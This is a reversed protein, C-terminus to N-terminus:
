DYKKTDTNWIELKPSHGLRYCANLFAQQDMKLESPFLSIESNFFLELKLTLDSIDAGDFDAGTYEGNVISASSLDTEIFTSAVCDCAVM